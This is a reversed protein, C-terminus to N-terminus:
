LEKVEPVRAQLKCPFPCLQRIVSIEYEPNPCVVGDPLCVNTTALVSAVVIWLWADAQFRGPCARRGFGFMIRKIFRQSTELFAEDRGDQPAYFREPKFSEPQPFQDPNHTMDWMNAILTTGAPLIHGNFSLNESIIRSTLPIPPAWRFLETVVANIYPLRVRDSFTPMRKRGIVADIEQQANEQVDPRLLMAMFFSMTLSTLTDGAAGYISISSHIAISKEDESLARNFLRGLYSQSVAHEGLNASVFSDSLQLLKQLEEQHSYISRATTWGTCWIPLSKMIPLFEVWPRRNLSMIASANDAVNKSLVVLLDDESSPTYGLTFSLFMKSYFLHTKRQLDCSNQLVDGIFRRTEMEMISHRLPVAKANLAGHMLRRTRTHRDDANPMFSLAQNYGCLHAMVRCPKDSLIGCRKNFLEDAVAFGNVIAVPRGVVKVFLLDGFEMRWKALSGLLDGYFARPTLGIFPYGSPGPPTSARVRVRIARYIFLLTALGLTVDTSTGGTTVDKRCKEDHGDIEFWPKREIAKSRAARGM